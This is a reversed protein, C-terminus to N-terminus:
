TLIMLFLSILLSDPLIVPTRWSNRPQQPYLTYTDKLSQPWDSYQYSWDGMAYTTLTGPLSSAAGQYYTSAIEPINIAMQLAERVKIDSFPKV